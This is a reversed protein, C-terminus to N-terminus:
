AYHDYVGALTIRQQTQVNGIRVYVTYGALLPVEMYLVPTLTSLDTVHECGTTIMHLESTADASYQLEFGYAERYGGFIVRTCVAPIGDADSSIDVAYTLSSTSDATALQIGMPENTTLTQTFRMYGCEDNIFPVIKAGNSAINWGNRILGVYVWKGTGFKTNITALNASEPSVSYAVLICQIGDAQTGYQVEVAYVYRWTNDTRAEGAARGSVATGADAATEGNADVALSCTTDFVKWLRDRGMIYTNGDAANPEIDFINDDVYRLRPKRYRALLWMLDVYQSGLSTNFQLIGWVELAGDSERISWFESLTSEDVKHAILIDGETNAIKFKDAVEDYHMSAFDQDWTIDESDGPASLSAYTMGGDVINDENLSAANFYNLLSTRMSDFQSETPNTNSSLSRSVALLSM